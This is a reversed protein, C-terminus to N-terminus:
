RASGAAEVVAILGNVSRLQVPTTVAADLLAPSGVVIAVCRARSIAVNLRHLDYLFSVGRPADEVSSSAMSYLAVSAEEGQFKEVTGVRAGEPLAARLRGVHADYPAVILIDGNGIPYTMEDPDAWTSGVLEDVIRAVVVAVESSAAENGTHEVPSGASARALGPSPRRLLSASGARPRNWGGKTFLTLSPRLWAGTCGGPATWSRYGM